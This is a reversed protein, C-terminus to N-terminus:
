DVVLDSNDLGIMELVADEIQKEIDIIVPAIINQTTNPNKADTNSKPTKTIKNNNIKLYDPLVFQLQNNNKTDILYSHPKTISLLIRQPISFYAGTAIEEVLSKKELLIDSQWPLIASIESLLTVCINNDWIVKTNKPITVVIKDKSINPSINKGIPRYIKNSRLDRLFIPQFIFIKIQDLIRIENQKISYNTRYQHVLCTNVNLIIEAMSSLVM